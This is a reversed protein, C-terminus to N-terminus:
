PTVRPVGYQALLADIERQHSTIFQNLRAARATDDKRVAMAIAFTQRMAGDQMPQVPTVALPEAARTAFYGALPGWATAIDIDGRAVANVIAAPPSDQRYDGYVTYGVLNGVIGRRSLAHAPPSNMGDDGILQVGIRLTRLQPDDFSRIELQRARRTVFVYTSRYYPRTAIVGEADAPYGMVVDCTGANLTNRLFGRRQAWWTYVVGTGLDRALREALINEFGERKANSFPLNNPDSCVRLPAQRTHAAFPLDVALLVITVFLVTVHRTM